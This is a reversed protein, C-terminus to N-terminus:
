AGSEYSTHKSIINQVQKKLDDPCNTNFLVHNPSLDFHYCESPKLKIGDVEIEQKDLEALEAKIKEKLLDNQLKDASNM